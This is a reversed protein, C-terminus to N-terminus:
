RPQHAGNRDEQEMERGGNSRLVTEDDDQCHEGSGPHGHRLWQFTSGPMKFRLGSYVFILYLCVLVAICQKTQLRGLFVKLTM